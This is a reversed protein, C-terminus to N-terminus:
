MTYLTTRIVGNFEPVECLMQEGAVNMNFPPRTLVIGSGCELRIDSGVPKDLNPVFEPKNPLHESVIVYRYHALQPIAREVHTNSLHQLVQRIFVVEGAPSADKSLDLVRFDVELDRYRQRNFEILPTVIDCATYRKCLPRLQSGVHFDGCGLDVVDPKEPLSSLFRSVAAVYEEVIPGEHSGTGSFFPQKADRAAGWVGDTYIKTFVQQTSLGAFEKRRRNARREFHWQLVRRPLLSKVWRKIM